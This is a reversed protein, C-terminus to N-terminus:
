ESLQSKYCEINKQYKVEQQKIFINTWIEGIWTSLSLIIISEGGLSVIVIGITSTIKEM